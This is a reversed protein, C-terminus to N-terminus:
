QYHSKFNEVEEEPTALKKMNGCWLCYVERYFKQDLEIHATMADKDSSFQSRQVAYTTMYKKHQAERNPVLPRIQNCQSCTHNYLASQVDSFLVPNKEIKLIELAKDLREINDKEQLVGIVRDYMELSIPEKHPSLKQPKMSQM